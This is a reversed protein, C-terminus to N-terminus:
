RDEKLNAGVVETYASLDSFAIKLTKSANYFDEVDYTVENSMIRM